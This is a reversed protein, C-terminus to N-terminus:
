PTVPPRIDRKLIKGSPGKPLEGVTWIVRPYKYAAVRSKMFERLDDPTANVNSALVVAAGVEEGLSPHPIGIVAAEQVAPHSYLVEELERPYVNYGGRIVLDKKRDVVFYYGDNDVTGIDGSRLWGDKFTTATADERNWYEKMVMPSRLLIEGPEGVPVERDDDDVLRIETGGIPSGISGPKRPRDLTNFTALATTESMGYGELVDCGLAAEFGRLVEVPLAAGGSICTELSSVDHDTLEPHHLLATYMTPVGGFVTVHDRAIIRVVAAPDFRPLLTLLGGGLLTANMMATMGFVHFLPLTALTVTDPRVAVLQDATRAAHGISAHTLVAGKPAGTTGSTYIIVAAANEPLQASEYLPDPENLAAELHPGTIVCDTEAQASGARADDECEQSSVLLRAGSDSLVYAIESRKLLPNMPVVVAGVRLIAYYLIPFSPVNPLQLGVRDGLAVNRARLWGAARAMGDNLEGYSLVQDDFKVAPRDPRSDAARAIDAAFNSM